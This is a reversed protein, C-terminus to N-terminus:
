KPKLYHKLSQAVYVRSDGIPDWEFIRTDTTHDAFIPFAFLNGDLRAFFLLSDFPMHDGAKYVEYRRMALNEREIEEVSWVLTYFAPKHYVGNTELLLSKLDEPFHNGLVKEVEAIKAASAPPFFECETGTPDIHERWTM